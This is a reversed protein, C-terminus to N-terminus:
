ALLGPLPGRCHAPEGFTRGSVGMANMVSVLLDGHYADKATADSSCGLDTPNCQTPFSLLRGTKIAGGCQGAVIVQGAHLTHAAGDSLENVWLVLTNDLLRGSGDPTRALLDLLYAFQQSYWQDVRTLEDARVDMSHTIGHHSASTQIWSMPPNPGGQSCSCQVTVFRTADCALARVAIEMQAKMVKPINERDYPEGVGDTQPPVCAALDVDLRKEIDRVTTLHADLKQRDEAGLRPSLNAYRRGVVDLISKRRLRLARMQSASAGGSGFIADFAESPRDLNPAAQGAATYCMRRGPDAPLNWDNEWGMSYVGLHLVGLKTPPRLQAQLYEDISPGNAWDTDKFHMANTLVSAFGNIHNGGRLQGARNALGQVVVIDKKFPALPQLNKSLQWETETGTCTRQDIRFGNPHFFIVLRKPIDGAAVADGPRLMAELFPLGVLSGGAARLLTRRDLRPPRRISESM